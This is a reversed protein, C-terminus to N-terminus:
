FRRRVELEVTRGLPDRLGPQYALPTLGDANRVRERANTLNNFNLSIRSGKTLPGNGLLRDAEAFARLSLTGLAGFRLEQSGSGSDAVGIRSASRYSAALRLGMGSRSANTSLELQHRPRGGAFLIAERSLLDIAPQGERLTLKSSLLLTHSLSLQLRPRSGRPAADDGGEEGEDGRDGRSVPAPALFFRLNLANRWQSESRRSFLIPSVDIATLVGSPDRTFRDPFASLVASSALPLDGAFDRERRRSWESEVRLDIATRPNLTIGFREQTSRARVRTGLPNSIETVRVSTGSLPDFVLVGPTILGAERRFRVAPPTTARSFAGTLRIWSLPQWVLGLSGTAFRGGDQVKTLGGDLSLNLEGIPRLFRDPGGALPIVLGASANVTRETFGSAGDVASRRAISRYHDSNFGGGLNLQLEGAPLAFLQRIASLELATSLSRLLSRDEATGTATIVQRRDADLTGLLALTWGAVEANLTSNLRGGLLRANQDRGFGESGLGLGSNRDAFTLRGSGSLDVEPGLRTAGSLSLDTGRLSPVLTRAKGEGPQSGDPQVIDREAETLASEARARLTLNLRAPGRIRTFTGEVRGAGWGGDTAVRVAARGIRGDFRRALLLNVVKRTPSAAVGAGSGSPLIEVGTLAEPPYDSLEELGSARRGNILVVPSGEGEESLLEDLLEGISGAGYSDIDERGLERVPLPLSRPATVIIVPEPADQAAAVAPLCLVALM